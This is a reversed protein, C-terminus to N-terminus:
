IFQKIAKTMEKISDVKINHEKKDLRSKIILNIFQEKDLTIILRAIAKKGKLVDIKAYNKSSDVNSSVVDVIDYDYKDYHKKLYEFTRYAIINFDDTEAHGQEEQIQVPINTVSVSQPLLNVRPLPADVVQKTDVVLGSFARMDYTDVFVEGNVVWINNINPIGNINEAVLFDGIGHPVGQGNATMGNALVINKYKIPIHFAFDSGLKSAKPTIRTWPLYGIRKLQELKQPTILSKDAFTYNKTVHTIRAVWMEERTGSLVVDNRGTVYDKNELVNHIKTGVPPICMYISYATKKRTQKWNEKQMVAQELNFTAM